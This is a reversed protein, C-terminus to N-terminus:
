NPSGNNLLSLLIGLKFVMTDYALDGEGAGDEVLQDLTEEVDHIQMLFNSTGPHSIGGDTNIIGNANHVLM